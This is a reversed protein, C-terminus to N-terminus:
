SLVDDNLRQGADLLARRSGASLGPSRQLVILSYGDILPCAFLSHRDNRSQLIEVEGLEGSTSVRQVQRLYIGVWAGILRLDQRGAGSQVEHVIEGSEDLFAAGLLDDSTAVLEDLIARFPM